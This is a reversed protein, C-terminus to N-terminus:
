IRNEFERRLGEWEAPTNVNILQKKIAATAHISALELPEMFRKVSCSRGAQIDAVIAECRASVTDTTKVVAPLPSSDIRCGNDSAAALMSLLLDSSLLPADVPVFLVTISSNASETLAQLTSVIGGVPGVQSFRDPVVRSEWEPRVHGSLLVEHCGAKLLANRARLLLSEGDLFLSAKDKGMRSSMGGALIVGVVDTAVTPM